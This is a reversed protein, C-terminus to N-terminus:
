DLIWLKRYPKSLEYYKDAEETEGQKRLVLSLYYQVEAFDPNLELVKTFRSKAEEYKETKLEILGTVALAYVSDAVIDAIYSNLKEYDEIKDSDKLEKFYIIRAIPSLIPTSNPSPFDKMQVLQESYSKLRENYDDNLFDTKTINILQSNMEDFEYCLYGASPYMISNRDPVHIAGLIHGVEHVLTIAEEISNWSHGISPFSPQATIVLDTGLLYALGLQSKNIWNWKLKKDLTIGIQLTLQDHNNYKSLKQLSQDLTIEFFSNWEVFEIVSLEVGFQQRLIDNAYLIRLRLRDKWSNPFMKRYSKDVWLSVNIKNGISSTDVVSCIPIDVLERSIQKAIVMWPYEFYLRNSNEDLSYMYTTDIANYSMIPERQTRDYFVVNSELRKAYKGAFRIITVYSYHTTVFISEWKQSVIAYIDTKPLVNQLQLLDAVKRFDSEYIKESHEKLIPNADIVKYGRAQLDLHLVRRYTENLETNGTPIIYITITQKEAFKYDTNLKLNTQSSSCGSYNFIILCGTSVILLV